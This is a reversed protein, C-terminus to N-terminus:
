SVPTLAASLSPTYTSTPPPPHTYIGASAYYGTPSYTPAIYAPAPSQAYTHISNASLPPEPYPAYKPSPPPPKADASVSPHKQYTLVEASPLASPSARRDLEYVVFLLTVADVIIQQTIVTKVSANFWRARSLASEPLAAVVTGLEVNSAQLPEAEDSICLGNNDYARTHVKAQSSWVSALRVNGFFGHLNAPARTDQVPPITLRLSLTLPPTRTPLPIPPALKDINITLATMGDALLSLGTIRNPYRIPAAPPQAFATPYAGPFSKQNTPYSYPGALNSFTIPPSPIEPLSSIPSSPSYSLGPGPGPSPFEGFSDPPSNSLSSAEDDYPEEITLLPDTSELKVPDPYLEEGGAVLHYEPEGKWMNRLVQIHSAVQKKSRTIGLNQLYDVLFQNRWRSRGRSYTAWPSDWYERLGQVFVAEIAEPWVATGSGDKLLKRHKRQPTLTKSSSPAHQDDM